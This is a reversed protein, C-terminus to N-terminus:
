EVYLLFSKLYDGEPHCINIPHDAAIRHIGIIRVKRSAEIAAQFLIKQFLDKDVHYSCSSTLIMSKPPIKQIAIRNIDKYGRCAAIVDKQRKAFAPPDIIILDYNLDHGRLFEFVDSAYFGHNGALYGNLTVNRKVTEIAKESIDVSDVRTAGGVMAYVSFAGTYSFCNLVRKGQSMLHVWQRMERHDLFFGTKQGEPINVIFKLGNEEIEVEEFPSGLLLGHAQELGEEKRSPLQSKEFIYRPQLKAKLYNVLWPRLRDMGLTSIQMVLAEDYRDVILGPLSDGEGNILRYANTNVDSFLLTRLELAADISQAMAEMPPTEGFAIMRGAINSKRNFYASGLMEGSSSHVRLIDGDAFNSPYKHVAGSFIWHHRNQIAKEKGPKLIVPEPLADIKIM